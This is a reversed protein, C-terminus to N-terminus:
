FLAQHRDFGGGPGIASTSHLGRAHQAAAGFVAGQVDHISDHVCCARLVHHFYAQALLEKGKVAEEDRLRPHRGPGALPAPILFNSGSM